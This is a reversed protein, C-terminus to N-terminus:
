SYKWGKDCALTQPKSRKGGDASVHISDGAKLLAYQTSKETQRLILPFADLMGIWMKDEATSIKAWNFCQGNTLTADLRLEGPAINLDIWSPMTRHHRHQKISNLITCSLLLVILLLVGCMHREYVNQKYEYVKM